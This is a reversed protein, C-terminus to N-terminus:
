SPWEPKMSGITAKVALIMEEMVELNVSRADEEHVYRWRVFANDLTELRRILEDSTIQTNSMEDFKNLLAEKFKSSLSRYLDAISYIADEKDIGELALLSKLYLKLSLAACTVAPQVLFENTKGGTDPPKMLIMAGEYYANASQYFQQEVPVTM